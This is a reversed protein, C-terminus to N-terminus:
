TWVCNSISVCRNIHSKLSFLLDSYRIPVGLSDASQDIKELDSQLGVIEFATLESKMKTEVGRLLRYLHSIRDRVLWTVVRPLMKMLPVFIVTFTLLVAIVKKIFNILSFPLYRNLYTPGNKYFDRADDSVVFEPDTQTPFEGLRQFIDARSHVEQLTRALLGIIEPHIDERVLLANTTAIVNVDAPPNDKELDIVGQPLVLRVFHPYIRTLAEARTINLMRVDPHRLLAQVTPSEPPNAIFIADLRGSNLAEVAASGAHPL